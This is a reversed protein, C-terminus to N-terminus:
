EDGLYIDEARPGKPSTTSTFMVRSGIELQKFPVNVCAGAHFFYDKGDEGKIFGFNQEERKRIVTGKM